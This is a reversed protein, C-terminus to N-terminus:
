NNSSHSGTAQGPSTGVSSMQKVTRREEIIKYPDVTSKTARGFWIKAVNKFCTTKSFPNGTTGEWSKKCYENTTMNKGSLNVHFFFLVWVFSGGVISLVIYISGFIVLGVTQPHVAIVAISYGLMLGCM